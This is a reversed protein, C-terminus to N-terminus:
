VPRVTKGRQDGGGAHDRCERRGDQRLGADGELLLDESVLEVGLGRANAVDVLVAVTVGDVTGIPVGTGCEGLPEFDIRGLIEIGVLVGVVEHGGHGVDIAIAM